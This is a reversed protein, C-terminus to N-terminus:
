ARALFETLRPMSVDREVFVQGVGRALVLALGGGEGEQGSGDAAVADPGPRATWPNARNGCAAVALRHAVRAWRGRPLTWARDFAFWCAM